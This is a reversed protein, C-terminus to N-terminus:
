TRARPRLESMRRTLNARATTELADHLGPVRYIVSRRLFRRLVERRGMRFLEDPVHAYERRILVEFRDFQAPSAGLIALDLDVLLRADDDEAEHTRTARIQAVIRERAPEPVGLAALRTEALEASREENDSARPDYVADHFWLALEVEAPRKASDAFRDLWGLCSRVHEVRHYHRHAEGYRAVLEDFCRGGEGRAGLRELARLFRARLPDANTSM